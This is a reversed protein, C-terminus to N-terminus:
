HLSDAIAVLNDAPYYGEVIIQVSGKMFMVYGPHVMGQGNYPPAVYAVSGQVTGVRAGPDAQQDVMGRYDRPGDWSSDMQAETIELHNYEIAVVDRKSGDEFTQHDIWTLKVTSDGTNPAAAAPTDGTTAPADAPTGDTLDPVAASVTNSSPALVNMAAQDKANALSVVKATSNGFGQLRPTWPHDPLGLAAQATDGNKGGGGDSHIIARVGWSGSACVVFVTICSAIIVKSHKGSLM